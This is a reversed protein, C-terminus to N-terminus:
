VLHDWGDALDEEKGDLEPLVAVAKVDEDQVYNM